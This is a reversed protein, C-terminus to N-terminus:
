AAAAEELFKEVNAYSGLLEQLVAEREEASAENMNQADECVKHLAQAGVMGAGGKLKHAAEVWEQCPGEICNEKLIELSEHSQVVFVDIFNKIEEPTEAYEELLSLDAPTEASQKKGGEKEQQEQEPFIVWQALVKKLEKSDIPKSVYDTMGANLCRERTGRMADATLAVIPLTSAKEKTSKRIDATAEYGNKQPMHCDILVLDFHKEDFAQVALEGDEVIEVGCFGMRRLLRAIFDQNLLHDEAVLVKAKDVELYADETSRQIDGAGSDRVFEDVCDTVKFPISFWFNSGEGLKSKVGITGGMMEVLDKTIALGLGTGGYKRTTSVDAQSFKDFITELKDEAIGIGTDIVECHIALSGDEKVNSNIKVNVGEKENHVSQESVSFKEEKEKNTYKIANSVLNTLIRSVRLPDGLVFPLNKNNYHCQLSIGKQSAIPAMTDIVNAVTETFDFGIEELVINGSEIKSIDLVDNVIDVLNIASKHINEIMDREETGLASDEVLIRALGIISNLPTRLEHSMNALFDSKAQNAREAKKSAEVADLRARELEELYAHLQENLSEAKDKERILDTTKELVMKQLNDRHNDLEERARDIANAIFYRVYLLALLFTVVGLALTARQKWVLSLNEKEFRDAIALVVTDQASVAAYLLEDHENTYSEEMFAEIGSNSELPQEAFAKLQLWQEYAASIKETIDNDEIVRAKARRDGNASLVLSGGNLFASFNEEIIKQAELAAAKNKNAQDHNESAGAIITEATHYAFRATLVRQLGAANLIASRDHQRISHQSLLTYSGVLLVLFVGLLGSLHLFVTNGSYVDREKKLGEQNKNLSITLAAAFILSSAIAVILALVDFRQNPDYRCDAWPIFVSAQMGTFHMGCIAAGMVLAAVIQWALKWRGDHQGLVFVIWLAAGSATVAIIFSLIFLSPIYRLDGDMKMAAMGTYHMACIATGLLVAGWVLRLVNLKGSRIVTLVDYAILVAILMSLATLATDYSVAMDMKYALMGIFHMSWIGSGFAFAGGIHLFREQKKTQAKQIDTALRLGTFSGLSAIIYSLVVLYPIYTGTEATPPIASFIFFYDLISQPGPLM